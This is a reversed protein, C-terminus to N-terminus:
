RLLIMRRSILKGAAAIPTLRSFNSDPAYVYCWARQWRGEFRIPTAVRLLQGRSDTQCEQYDDLRKWAPRGASLQLLDGPVKKPQNEFIADLGHPCPEDPLRYLNAPDLKRSPWDQAIRLTVYGGSSMCLQGPIRAPTTGIVLHQIM